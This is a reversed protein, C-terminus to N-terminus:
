FSPSMEGSNRGGTITAQPGLGIRPRALFADEETLGDVENEGRGQEEGDVERSDVERMLGVGVMPRAKFVSEYDMEEFERGPDEGEAVSGLRGDGEGDDWQNVPYQRSVRAAKRLSARRQPAKAASELMSLRTRAQLASHLDETQTESSDPTAFKEKTPSLKALSQRARDALTSTTSLPNNDSPQPIPKHKTIIDPPASTTSSSEFPNPQEKTPSLRALSARTREALTPQTPKPIINPIPKPATESPLSPLPSKSPESPMSLKTAPPERISAVMKRPSPVPPSFMQSPLEMELTELDDYEEDPASAQPVSGSAKARVPYSIAKERSKDATTNSRTELIGTASGNDHTPFAQQTQTGDGDRLAASSERSQAYGPRRVSSLRQPTSLEPIRSGVSTKSLIPTSGVRTHRQYSLRSRPKEGIKSTEGNVNSDAKLAQSPNSPQRLASSRRTTMDSGHNESAKDIKEMPSKTTLKQPQRLSSTRQLSIPKSPLNVARPTEELALPLPAADPKHTHIAIGTSLARRHLPTTNSRPPVVKSFRSPTRAPTKAPSRMPTKGPAKFPSNRPTASAAALEQEIAKWKDLRTQQEKLRSELSQLLSQTEQPETEERNGKEVHPWVQDFPRELLSNTPRYQDGHLLIDAWELEGEWEAKLHAELRSLLGDSLPKQSWAKAQSDIEASRQAVEGEKVKLTQGFNTYRKALNRREELGHGLSSRYAVELVSTKEDSTKYKGGLIQKTVSKDHVNHTVSKNLALCSLEWLLKM